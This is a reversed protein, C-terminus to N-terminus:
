ATLPLTVTMTTGQGPQSQVAIAGHHREIILKTSYLGLGTGGENVNAGRFFREFIHKSDEESIGIGHDQITIVAGAETKALSVIVETNAASYKIANEILNHLAIRLKSDDGSVTVETPSQHYTLAIHKATAEGTFEKIIGALLLPLHVPNNAYTVTGTDKVATITTNLLTVMNDSAATAQGVADLQQETLPGYDGDHLMKLLWKMATLSTRLEHASLLFFDIKEEPSSKQNNEM